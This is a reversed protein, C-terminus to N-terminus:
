KDFLLSFILNEFTKLMPLLLLNKKLVMDTNWQRLNRTKTQM